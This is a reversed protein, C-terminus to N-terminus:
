GSKQLRRLLQTMAKSLETAADENQVIQIWRKGTVPHILWCSTSVNNCDYHIYPNVGYVSFRDETFPITDGDGLKNISVLEGRPSTHIRHSSPTGMRSAAVIRDDGYAYFKLLNNVHTTLASIADNTNYLQQIDAVYKDSSSSWSIESKPNGGTNVPQSARKTQSSEIQTITSLAERYFRGDSGTKSVYQELKRRAESNKGEHVYLKAIFYDFEPPQAVPLNYVKDLHTKAANYDNDQLADEAALLLRDAEQSPSLAAASIAMVMLL